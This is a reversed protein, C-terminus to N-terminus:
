KRIKFLVALADREHAEAASDDGYLRAVEARATMSLALDELVANIDRTDTM